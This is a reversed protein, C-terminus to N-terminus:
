RPTDLIKYKCYSVPIGLRPVWVQLSAKPMDTKKGRSTLQSQGGLSLHTTM